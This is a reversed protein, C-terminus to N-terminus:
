PDMVESPLHTGPLTEELTFTPWIPALIATPTLGHIRHTIGSGFRTQLFTAIAKDIVTTTHHEPVLGM